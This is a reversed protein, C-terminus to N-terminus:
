VRSRAGTLVSSRGVPAQLKVDVFGAERMAALASEVEAGGRSLPNPLWAPSRTGHFRLVLLFRGGPKLLERVRALTKGPADWFQFSHLAAAHSFTETSWDLDRDTGERLDVRVPAGLRELRRRAQHVMLPSPDVGALLGNGLRPALRAALGGTGFGIELVADGPQPDILGVARRYSPANLREMLLAFVRGVLGHPRM